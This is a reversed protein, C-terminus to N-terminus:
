RDTSGNGAATEPRASALDYLVLRDDAHLPGLGASREWAAREEGALRCGDVDHVLLYRVGRERFWAPGPLGGPERDCLERSARALASESAPSRLEPPVLPNVPLPRQHATHYYASLARNAEWGLELFVDGDPPQEGLHALAAPIAPLPHTPMPRLLAAFRGHAAPAYVTVRGLLHLGLLLAVTVAVASGRWLDPRGRFRREAEVALLGAAILAAFAFRRPFHFRWLLPVHQQLGHYPLTIRVGGVDVFNGAALLLFVGAVAAWFWAARRRVVVALVALALWPLLGLATLSGDDAAPAGAVWSILPAVPPRSSSAHEIGQLWRLSPLLPLLALGAGIGLAAATRGAMALRPGAVPALGVPILVMALALVAGLELGYYMQAAATAAVAAAAMALRARGGHRLLAIWAALALTFLGHNALELDPFEGNAQAGHVLVLAAVGCALLRTGGAVRVLAYSGVLACLNAAAFVANVAGAAGLLPRLLGSLCVHFYAVSVSLADAGHPYDLLPCHLLDHEASRLAVSAWWSMWLQELADDHHGPVLYGHHSLHAFLQSFRWAWFTLLAGIALADRADWSSRAAHQM